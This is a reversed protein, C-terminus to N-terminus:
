SFRVRTSNVSSRLFTQSAVAAPSLNLTRRVLVFSPKASQRKALIAGFDTDALVIVRDESAAYDTIDEDAWRQMGLSRTDAVDFGADSLLAPLDRSLNQDLLLRM